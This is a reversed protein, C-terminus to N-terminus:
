TVARNSYIDSQEILTYQDEYCTQPTELDSYIILQVTGYM